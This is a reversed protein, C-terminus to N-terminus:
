IARFTILKGRDQGHGKPASAQNEYIMEEDIILDDIVRQAVMDRLVAEFGAAAFFESNGSFVGIGGRQLLGVLRPLAAPGVHGHTFTGASVWGAYSARPLGLDLTVDREFLTRYRGKEGAVKLMDPSLDLGDVVMSAPLFEAMQGTGCGVDLVPGQGGAEVFKEAVRRALRYGSAAVFDADYSAAWARYLAKNADPGDLGYAADLDPEKETDAM